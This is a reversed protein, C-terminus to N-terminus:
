YREEPEGCFLCCDHCEDEEDDYVCTGLPNREDTCDWEGIVLTAGFDVPDRGDGEEPDPIFPRVIDVLSSEAAEIEERIAQVRARIKAARDKAEEFARM